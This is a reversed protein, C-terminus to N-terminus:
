CLVEKLKSEYVFAAWSLIENENPSFANGNIAFTLCNDACRKRKYEKKEDIENCLKKIFESHSAIFLM